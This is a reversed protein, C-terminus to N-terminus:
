PSRSAPRFTFEIPLQDFPLEEPLPGFRGSGACEVAGMAEFDFAVSGSSEVVSLDSVTGDRRIRFRVTAELDGGRRWRFCRNIQRIINEYYEPYDRRIGEMRVDIDEGTVEADPEPEASGTEVEEEEAPAEPQPAPEEPPTEEPEEQPEPEEEEEPEPEDEAPPPPTEEVEEVTPEPTEVELPREPVPLGEEPAPPSVLEIEYAVFPTPRPRVTESLVLAVLALLHVAGSLMWARRDPGRGDM